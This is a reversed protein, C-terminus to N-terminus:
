YGQFIISNGTEEKSEKCIYGAYQNMEDFARLCMVECGPVTVGCFDDVHPTLFGVIYSSFLGPFLSM